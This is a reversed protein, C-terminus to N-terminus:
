VVIVRKFLPTVLFLPSTKYTYDNNLTGHLEKTTHLYLGQTMNKKTVLRCVSLGSMM